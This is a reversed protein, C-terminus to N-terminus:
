IRFPKGDHDGAKTFSVHIHHRHPDGKQVRWKWRSWPYTGSTIRGDYIVYRIRKDGSAAAKRLAEALQWAGRRDKPDLDADIDIARVVGAPRSTRDPNHDSKRAQHSADGISGDSRKDRKPYKADVQKRLRQGAESLWWSM